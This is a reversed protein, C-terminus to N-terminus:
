QLELGRIKVGFHVHIYYYLVYISLNNFFYPVFWKYNLCNLCYIASIYSV